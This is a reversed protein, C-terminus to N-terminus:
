EHVDRKGLTIIIECVNDGLSRRKTYVHDALPLIGKVLGTEYKEISACTKPTWGEKYNGWRCHTVHIVVKNEDRKIIKSKIGFIRHMTLITYACGKLDRELGISDLVEEAQNLGITYMVDNLNRVGESGYERQMMEMFGIYISGIGSITKKWKISYPVMDLDMIKIVIAKKFKNLLGGKREKSKKGCCNDM